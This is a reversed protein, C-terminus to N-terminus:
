SYAVHWACEGCHYPEQAPPDLVASETKGLTGRPIDGIAYYRDETSVPQAIAILNICESSIVHLIPINDGEFFRRRAVNVQSM